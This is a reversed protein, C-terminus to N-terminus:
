SFEASETHTFINGEAIFKAYAYLQIFSYVTMIDTFM